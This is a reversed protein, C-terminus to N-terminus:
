ATTTQELAGAAGLYGEVRFRVVTGADVAVTGAGVVGNSDATIPDLDVSNTADYVEVTADAIPVAQGASDYYNVDFPEYNSSPM